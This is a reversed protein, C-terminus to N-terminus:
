AVSGRPRRNKNQTSRDAWRCNGPEYNGDNDIRDITMDPPRPGMDALFREFDDWEPCITIGRGGYYKWARTNPNLCRQRMAKWIMYTPTRWAGHKKKRACADSCCKGKGAAIRSPITEFSTGCPCVVSIRKRQTM